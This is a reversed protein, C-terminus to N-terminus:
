MLGWYGLLTLVLLVIGVVAAVFRTPMVVGILLSTIYVYALIVVQQELFVYSRIRGIVWTAAIALFYWRSVAQFHDRWSQVKEPADSILVHIALYLSIAPAMLLVFDVVSWEPHTSLLWTAAWQYLCSLFSITFFLGHVPDFRSPAFVHPIGTILKSLALALVISAAISYFEFESL